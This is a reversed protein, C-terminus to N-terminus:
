KKTIKYGRSDLINFLQIIQNTPEYGRTPFYTQLITSKWKVHGNAQLYERGNLVSLVLQQMQEAHKEDRRDVGLLSAPVAYTETDAQAWKYHGTTLRSRLYVQELAPNAPLRVLHFKGALKDIFPVPAGGVFIVADLAGAEM